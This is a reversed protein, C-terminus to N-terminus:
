VNAGRLIHHGGHEDEVAQFGAVVGVAGLGGGRRQDLGEPLPDGAGFVGQEGRGVVVRVRAANGIRESDGQMVAGHELFGDDHGRKAMAFAAILGLGLYHGLVRAVQARM